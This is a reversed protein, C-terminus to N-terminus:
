KTEKGETSRRVLKYRRQTTTGGKRGIAEMHVRNKSVSRGGLRAIAKRAELTMCAFGKKQKLQVETQKM